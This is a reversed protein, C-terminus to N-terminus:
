AFTSEVDVTWPEESAQIEAEKAWKKGYLALGNLEIAEIITDLDEPQVDYILNDSGKVQTLGHKRGVEFNKLDTQSGDVSFGLGTDVVPRKSVQEFLNRLEKLKEEVGYEKSKPVTKNEVLVKEGDFVVIPKAGVVVENPPVIPNIEVVEYWGEKELEEKSLGRVEKPLRGVIKVVTDLGIVKGYKM